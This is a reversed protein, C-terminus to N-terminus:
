LLYRASFFVFNLYSFFLFFRYFHSSKLIRRAITISLNISSFLFYLDKSFIIFSLNKCRNMILLKLIIFVTLFYLSSYIVIMNKLIFINILNLNMSFFYLPTFFLNFFVKLDANVRLDTNHM